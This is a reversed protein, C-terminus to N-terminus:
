RLRIKFLRKVQKRLWPRVNSPVLENVSAKLSASYAPVPMEKLRIGAGPFEAPVVKMVVQYVAGFTSAELVDKQRATLRQWHPALETHEPPTVVFEAELIKYGAQEVLDQMNRLGFFRIHTRDLLGWDRYEFDGDIISAIVANNGVHPLSIVLYGHEKFFPRLASLCNRPMYLHEFVDAAVLADFTGCGALHRTWDSSNLDCQFVKECFASLKEIASADVEVGTVRCGNEQLRSTISGPGAGIELVRKDSGVMRVVKAPATQAEIDIVYEYNHRQKKSM